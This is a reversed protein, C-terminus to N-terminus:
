ESLNILDGHYAKVSPMFREETQPGPLLFNGPPTSVEKQEHALSVCTPSGNEGTRKGNYRETDLRRPVPKAGWSYDGSSVGTRPSCQCSNSMKASSLLDLQKKCLDRLKENPAQQM